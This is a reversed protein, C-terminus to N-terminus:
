IYSAIMMLQDKSLLGVISDAGLREHAGMTFALKRTQARLEHLRQRLMRAARGRWLAQLCIIRESTGVPANFYITMDSSMISVSHPGITAVRFREWDITALQEETQNHYIRGRYHVEPNTFYGNGSSLIRQAVPHMQLSEARAGSVISCNNANDHRRTFLVARCVFVSNELTDLQFM